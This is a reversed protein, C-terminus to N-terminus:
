EIEEIREEIKKQIVQVRKISGFRKEQGFLIRGTGVIWM